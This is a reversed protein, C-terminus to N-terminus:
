ALLVVKAGTRTGPEMLPLYAYVPDVVVPHQNRILTGITQFQEGLNHGPEPVLHDGSLDVNGVYGRDGCTLSGVHSENPETRTRLMRQM